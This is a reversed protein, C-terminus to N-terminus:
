IQLTKYHRDNDVPWWGTKARERQLARTEECPETRHQFWRKVGVPAITHVEDDGLPEAAPM